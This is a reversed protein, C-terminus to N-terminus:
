QGDRGCNDRDMRNEVQPERENRELREAVAVGVMVLGYTLRGIAGVLENDSRLAGGVREVYEKFGSVQVDYPVTSEKRSHTTTPRAKSWM